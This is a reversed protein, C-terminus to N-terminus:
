GKCIVIQKMLDPGACYYGIIPDLNASSIVHYLEIDCTIDCNHSIVHSIVIIHYWMHYWLSGLNWIPVAPKELKRDPNWNLQPHSILVVFYIMLCFQEVPYQFSQWLYFCQKQQITENFFWAWNWWYVLEREKMSARSFFCSYSHLEIFLTLQMRFNGNDWSILTLFM